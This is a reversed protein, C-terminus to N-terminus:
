WWRGAPAASLDRCGQVGSKPGLIRARSGFTVLFRHITVTSHDRRSRRTAIPSRAAKPPHHGHDVTGELTGPFGQVVSPRNKPRNQVGTRGVSVLGNSELGGVAARAAVGHAAMASMVRGPHRRNSRWIEPSGSPGSVLAVSRRSCRVMCPWDVPWGYTAQESASRHGVSQGVLASERAAFRGGTALVLRRRVGKAGVVVAESWPRVHPRVATPVPANSNARWGGGSLRCRTAAGSDASPVRM